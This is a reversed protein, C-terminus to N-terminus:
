NTGKGQSQNKLQMHHMFEKCPDPRDVRATFWVYDFPLTGDGWLEAYQKITTLEKAVEIWAISVIRANKEEGSIYMPVGRDNRAHGSGVVLIRKDVGSDRLLSHAMVADKVKQTRMMARIMQPNDMGCHSKRIEEKLAQKQKETLKNKELYPRIEPPINKDGQRAIAMIAMRDLNAPLVSYGAELASNFVPRYRNEYQWTTKIQNLDSILEDTSVYQKNKILKGQASNIMEFAVLASFGSQYLSNILWAQYEHHLRNDHTEGLLIYEGQRSAEVLKERDVFKGSRVDWIKGSLVHDELVLPYVDHGSMTGCSSLFLLSFLTFLITKMMM